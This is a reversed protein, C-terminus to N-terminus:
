FLRDPSINKFYRREFLDPQSTIFRDVIALNNPWPRIFALNSGAWRYLERNIEPRVVDQYHEFYTRVNEPLFTTNLLDAFRNIFFYRYSENKLLSSIIETSWLFYQDYYRRKYPNVYIGTSRNWFNVPDTILSIISLQPDNNILYTEPDLEALIKNEFIQM